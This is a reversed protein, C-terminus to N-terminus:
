KDLLAASQAMPGQDWTSLVPFKKGGGALRPDLCSPAAPPRGITGGVIASAEFV